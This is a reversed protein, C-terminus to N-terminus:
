KQIILLNRHVSVIFFYFYFLMTKEIKIRNPYVQYWFLTYTKYIKLFIVFFNPDIRLPGFHGFFFVIQFFFLYIHYVTGKINVWM